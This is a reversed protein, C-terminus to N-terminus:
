PAASEKLHPPPVPAALCRELDSRTLGVAEALASYFPLGRALGALLPQLDDGAAAAICRVLQLSQRYAQGPDPLHDFHRELQYLNYPEDWAGPPPAGTLKEDVWQALGESFWTPYNGLTYVDLVWHALEHVVPMAGPGMALHIHGRHYVGGPLPGRHAAAGVFPTLDEHLHLLAAPLEGDEDLLLAEVAPLMRQAEQAARRAAAEAGAPAQVQIRRGTITVPEQDPWWPARGRYYSLQRGYTYQALRLLPGAAAPGYGARARWQVVAGAFALIGLSVVLGALWPALLRAM